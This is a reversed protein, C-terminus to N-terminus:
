VGRKSRGFSLACTKALDKSLLDICHAPDCLPLAPDGDAKLKKAVREAVKSAANDVFISAIKTRFVLKIQNCVNYADDM